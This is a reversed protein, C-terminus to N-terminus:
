HRDAPADGHDHREHDSEKVKIEDHQAIEDADPIGNVAVWADTAMQLFNMYSFGASEVYCALMELQFLVSFLRPDIAKVERKADGEGESM